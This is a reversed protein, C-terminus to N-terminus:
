EEDDEYGDDDYQEDAQCSSLRWVLPNMRMGARGFIFSLPSLNEAIGITTRLSWDLQM